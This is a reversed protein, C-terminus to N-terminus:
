LDEVDVDENEDLYDIIKNMEDEETLSEQKIKKLDKKVSAQKENKSQIDKEPDVVFKAVNEEAIEKPTQKKEETKNFFPVYKKILFAALGIAIIVAVIILATM